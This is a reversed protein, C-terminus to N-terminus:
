ASYAIGTLHESIEWLGATTKTDEAKATVKAPAPKGKLGGMGDPGYYGGGRAESSTAAFLIPLAGQAASQMFIPGLLRSLRASM